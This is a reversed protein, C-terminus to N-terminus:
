LYSSVLFACLKTCSSMREDSHPLVQQTVYAHFERSRLLFILCELINFSMCLKRHLLLKAFLARIGRALIAMSPGTECLYTVENSVNIILWFKTVKGRRRHFLYLYWKWPIYWDTCTCQLAFFSRISTVNFASEWVTVQKHNIIDGWFNRPWNAGVWYALTM